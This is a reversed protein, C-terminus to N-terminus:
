PTPAPGPSLVTLTAHGELTPISDVYGPWTDITVTGQTELLTRAEAVSRGKVSALLAAADLSRWASASVRIVFTVVGGQVTPAGIVRQVSGPLLQSGSPVTAQVIQDAMTELPASQVALVTGTASLALGFTPAETGALGSTAPDATTEGMAATAAILTAGAPVTEPAALAAEFQMQLAATLTALAADVDEQKVQKTETHTGGSTAATNTVSLLHLPTDKGPPLTTITNAGVNGGPGAVLAEVRVTAKGAKFTPPPATARPVTVAALTKFRVASSTAVISGAAIVNSASTDNNTFTVRGTAKSEDIKLGTADFTDSAQLPVEITQAPVVGAALDASTAAPDAVIARSVPGVAELKPVLTIQASPLVFIMGAGALLVALVLVAVLAVRLRSPRPPPSRRASSGPPQELAPPPSASPAVAIYASTEAMPDVPLSGPLVGLAAHADAGREYDAVSAFAPLGASAAMARVGADPTVIAVQRESGGVERALLRFNIRSTGIRSGPPLVLALEADDVARIRAIATTIEDDGDLYLVAM